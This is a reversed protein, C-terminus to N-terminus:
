LEFLRGIGPILALEVSSTAIPQHQLVEPLNLEDKGHKGHGKLTSQRLTHPFKGM